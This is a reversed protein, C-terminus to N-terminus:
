APDTARRVSLGEFAIGAVTDALQAATVSGQASYWEVLSNLMGFLLRSVVAPPLDDRLKGEKTAESVLMALQRDLRRRRQLAANELETNGRVRLLLTVAPQHAVLAIVGRNVVYSLREYASGGAVIGAALTAELEELAENLAEALLEEKTAVHHYVAPKTVGLASAIDGITTADYGKRIFLDISARLV